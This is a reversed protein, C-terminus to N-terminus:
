PTWRPARRTQPSGCRGTGQLRPDAQGLIQIRVGFQTAASAEERSPYDRAAFFEVGTCENRYGIRGGIRVLEANEIDHRVLGGFQWNRNPAWTAEGSIEARDETIGAETDDSLFVYGTTLDVAGLNLNAEIEQRRLSMDDRLRFRSSVTIWPQWGVAIDAVVDSRRSRLGSGSSFAESERRRFVRGIAADVTLASDSLLSYRLGLNLRTGDEVRDFGPFRNMSLLNGTDFEVLLSDENPIGSPNVGRPAVVLLASPELLHRLGATAMILPYRAELGAQPVFRTTFDDSFGADNWVRYLDVRAEALARLAIGGPLIEEAEWDMGLSLRGTDRGEPRLLLRHSASLGITGAEGPVALDRRVFFRPLLLQDEGEPEESRLSRFGTAAIRYFGGEDYHEAYLESTLRDQESFGYRLMYDPDSVAEARFGYRAGDGPLLGSGDFEGSSLLHSRLERRDDAGTTLAGVSAAIDIRGDGDFRQRYEAGLIPGDRSTILPTLTVDRSADIAVFWPLEVAFGFRSSQRFTPPLLGSKRTVTPDPHSFVPLWAVPVGLVDFVASEYHVMREVEDHIVRRARIQWLPVPAAACVECATYVARSLVSYRGDIREGRAAALTGSRGGILARAGRVIGERLDADLEAADALLVTGDGDRLSLPGEAVIRETRSDYVIRSATLTRAGQYIEVQGQATLTGQVEDFLIEDAVLAVPADTGAQLDALPQARPPSGLLLATALAGWAAKKWTKKVCAM